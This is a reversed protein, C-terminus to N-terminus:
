YRPMSRKLYKLTSQKKEKLLVEAGFLSGIRIGLSRCAWGRCFEGMLLDLVYEAFDCSM